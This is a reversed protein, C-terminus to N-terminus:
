WRWPKHKGLLVLYSSSGTGKANWTEKGDDVVSAVGLAGVLIAIEFDM